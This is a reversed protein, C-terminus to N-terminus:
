APADTGPRELLSDSTLLVSDIITPKNRPMAHGSDKKIRPHHTLAVRAMYLTKGIESLLMAATAIVPKQM